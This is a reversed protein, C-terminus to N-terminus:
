SPTLTARAARLVAASRELAQRENDDMAPELVLSAGLRGVLAPLSLAVGHQGCAGEQVRSVTLVRRQDGLICAVLRAAVLGIAHNTAGKRQIVEYAATRVEHALRQELAADWQPWTRLPVGGVQAGSWLV